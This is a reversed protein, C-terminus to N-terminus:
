PIIHFGVMKRGLSDRMIDVAGPIQYVGWDNAGAIFASPVDITRGSFIQLESTLREDLRPRYNNLSGQFGTRAYESAFVEVDDDTLWKCTAIEAATPMQEAVTECMTKNLDMVYYTPMKAM